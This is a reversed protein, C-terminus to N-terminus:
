TPIRLKAPPPKTAVVYPLYDTTGEEKVMLYTIPPTEPIPSREALFDIGLFFLHNHNQFFIFLPSVISLNDLDWGLPLLMTPLHDALLFDAV